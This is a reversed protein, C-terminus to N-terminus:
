ESYGTVCLDSFHRSITILIARKQNWSNVHLRHLFTRIMRTSSSMKTEKNKVPFYFLFIIVKQEFSDPTLFFSHLPVFYGELLGMLLVLYVGDAFQLFSIEWYIKQICLLTGPSLLPWHSQDISKSKIRSTAPLWFLCRELYWIAHVGQASPLLVFTCDWSWM